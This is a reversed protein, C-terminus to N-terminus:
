NKWIDTIINGPHSALVDPLLVPLAFSQFFFINIENKIQMRRYKKCNLKKLANSIDNLFYIATTINWSNWWPICFSFVHGFKM